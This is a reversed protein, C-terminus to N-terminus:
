IDKVMEDLFSMADERRRQLENNVESYDIDKSLVDAIGDFDKIIRSTLGYEDLLNILKNGNDRTKVAFNSNTIISMVSGHFTDTLVEKASKFYGLLEVPNVNVNYDCWEHYFGPSLTKLGRIKAYQKIRKVEEEDNMRNDYAYILLYPSYNVTKLDELEKKYGYLIVPDCVLKADIGTLEKVINQSNKDRVSVGKMAALGSAVFPVCHKQKIDSVTTPDFCGAYSFVTDSPCAHGFFVPTPGTHLAFVEDSGVIVADLNESDSYYSGVIHHSAKFGNLVKRKQYNFYMCKVGKDILYKVYIGISKASIDYKAKLKHGLFDYNKDFQLAKAEIAYRERLVQVLANLQLIAGHNHVDYHTVIGVKKM